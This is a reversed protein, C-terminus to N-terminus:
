LSLLEKEKKSEMEDLNKNFGDIQEQLRDYMQHIDDESVGDEDKSKDIEKKMELRVQRIMAKGSEVKQKIVKVLEQRREETLAPISIRVQDNDVVPSLQLDSKQIATEIKKVVSPDWPKILISQPDPATISALEKVLSVSGEYAEVKVDEVLAPKARGTQVSMLDETVLEVVEDM